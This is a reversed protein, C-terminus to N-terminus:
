PRPRHGAFRPAWVGIGVGFATHGLLMIRDLRAAEGSRLGFWGYGLSPFLVLLPLGASAIGFATAAPFGPRGDGRRPVLLFAQTLIIGTVYHTVIGLAVEGRRAPARRIDRHRWRGRVLDAAWRGIVAPALGNSTFASGGVRSAAVLAADMTLTALVGAPVGAPVRIARAHSVRM